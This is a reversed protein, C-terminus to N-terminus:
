SQSHPPTVPLHPGTGGPETKTIAGSGHSVLLAVALVRGIWARSM